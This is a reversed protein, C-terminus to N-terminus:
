RRGEHGVVAWSLPPMRCQGQQLEVGSGSCALMSRRGGTPVLLTGAAHNTIVRATGRPISQAGDPVEVLDDVRATTLVQRLFARMAERGPDFGLYFAHGSGCAHRAAAAAGPCHGDLWTWLPEAGAVELAEWWGTSSAEPLGRSGTARWSRQPAATRWGITHLDHTDNSNQSEIVRLGFVDLAPHDRRRYGGVPDKSLTKRGSALVGGGHVYCALNDLGEDDILMLGPTLVAAYSSLDDGAQVCDVPVGLDFLAQQWREVELWYSFRGGYYRDATWYSQWSFALAVRPAIPPLTLADIRDLADRMRAVEALRARPRGAHDIFGMLDQEHGNPCSEWRWFTHVREGHAQASVAHIINYGPASALNADVANVANEMTWLAQGRGVSRMLHHALSNGALTFSCFYNDWSVLDFERQLAWYDIEQYDAMLNTTIPRTTGAARLAAVQDRAFAVFQDSLFQRTLLRMEPSLSRNRPLGAEQWSSLDQSWFAGGIAANLAEVTGFRQQLHTRFAADSDPDFSEGWGLENDVMWACVAPHRDLARCMATAISRCHDRYVTSAPNVNRRSGYGEATGSRDTKMVEPHARLLWAPPCATPTDLVADMGHAHLRDLARLVWAFDYTAADPQLRSWAFDLMRVRTFGAGRMMDLDVDWRAEPVQEPYWSVALVVPDSPPM